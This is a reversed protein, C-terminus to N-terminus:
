NLKYQPCNTHRHLEGPWWNFKIRLGETSLVKDLDNNPIKTNTQYHLTQKPWLVTWIDSMLRRIGSPLQDSAQTKNLNRKGCGQKFKSRLQASVLFKRGQEEGQGGADAEEM